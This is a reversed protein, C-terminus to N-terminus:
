DFTDKPFDPGNDALSRRVMADLKSRLNPRTMGKGKPLVVSDALRNIQEVVSPSLVVDAGPRRRRRPKNNM